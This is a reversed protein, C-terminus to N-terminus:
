YSYVVDDSSNCCQCFALGGSMAIPSGLNLVGGGFKLITGSTLRAMAGDDALVLKQLRPFGNQPSLVYKQGRLCSWWRGFLEFLKIRSYRCIYSIEISRKGAALGDISFAQCSVVPPSDAANDYM